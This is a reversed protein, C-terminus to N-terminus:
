RIYERHLVKLAKEADRERVVFTISVGSAAQSILEVPIGRKGLVTFMKGAVGAANVSGGVACVIAKRWEVSVDGYKKLGRVIELLHKDDDITLSVGAVSTAVIDISTRYRDFVEFIGAMLGNSDFFEPSHLHIVIVPRKFTLAEVTHSRSRREAFGAVITTGKDSPRFTNLVRVPIKERMAPLITKPHLVKAGFYALEGAEEFALEPVVKAGKVLRPDATYVGSVDTWIEIAKAGLAAGFIAASYDSGGRGLTTTKKDRTAGIYGTVIQLKRHARFYKKINVNTTKFDVFAAGFHDDTTIVKRANLYECAIGRDNLVETLLHASLREGYSVVYDFTQPSLDRMLAVGTVAENLYRFTRHIVEQSHARNKANVLKNLTELHRRELRTLLKKYSPDKHSAVSAIKILQDTVGSMASVVVAVIRADGGSRGNPRAPKQPKSVISIVREIAEKSGMSTGGFKVVKFGKKAM